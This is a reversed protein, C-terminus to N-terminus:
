RIMRSSCYNAGQCTRKEDMRRGIFNIAAAKDACWQPAILGRAATSDAMIRHICQDPRLYSLFDCLIDAYEEITLCDFEGTEYPKQLATNEIVMLQHIKVGSVPLDAIARATEMMMAPTEGPLGLIVHAVTEIARKSLEIVCQKFDEVTHGRNHMSLTQNHSSQLGIEVSLYTRYAVDGLYEYIDRSFCDPRTGIALGIVRPIIILPEYVRSLTSVDGYTNSFPQLYAIFAGYRSPAKSMAEQLQVAAPLSREVAPSFSRNDCFSCGGRSLKGDRNPCSFGGNLAVKLVPKGFRERLYERYSRYHLSM